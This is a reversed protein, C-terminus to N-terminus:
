DLYHYLELFSIYITVNDGTTPNNKNNGKVAITETGTTGDEKEYSLVINYDKDSITIESTEKIYTITLNFTKEEGSNLEINSLDDYTYDLYESDNDDSISLIKYKSNTNNKLTIDYKIYEDKNDFSINNNIVGDSLSVDKVNVGNSKEKVSINTIKFINEEALVNVIGFISFILLIFCLLKSSQKILKKM